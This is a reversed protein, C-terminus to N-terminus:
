FEISSWQNEKSPDKKLFVTSECSCFVVKFQEGFKPHEVWEGSLSLIEGPTPSPINGVITVLDTYGYVKIKAVTYANEENEFTVRELQGKLKVLTQKETEAKM